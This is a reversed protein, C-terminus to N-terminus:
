LTPPIGIALFNSESYIEIPDLFIPNLPDTLASGDGDLLIPKPTNEDKSDKYLVYNEPNARNTPNDTVNDDFVKFGKDVVGAEDWGEFRIEFEFKRTYYFSCTGYLKRSWTPLGMKIRRAALGWLPADNLTDIMQTFVELGISLVNQEIIVTPRSADRELGTILEHSSSLIAKGNRDREAPLTYRLFSGSINPPEALPDDIQNDQCRKGPRNSFTQEVDWTQNPENDVVPRVILEPTCFVWPDYDNGVSWPSGISALGPAAMAVLPGDLPDNTVVRWTIKYERYGERDRGGSWKKRRVATVSM